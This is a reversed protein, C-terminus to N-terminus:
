APGECEFWVTKGGGPAPTVGWKHVLADVLFLGRGGESGPQLETRTPLLQGYADTVEVRVGTTQKLLLLKCRRDPVHRVVNAILETLALEVTDTLPELNWDTLLGRAIRRIHRASHAGATLTM